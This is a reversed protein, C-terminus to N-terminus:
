FSLNALQTRLRVCSWYLSSFALQFCALKEVGNQMCRIQMQQVASTIHQGAPHVRVQTIHVRKATTNQAMCGCDNVCMMRGVCLLQLESAAPMTQRSMGVDPLVSIQQSIYPVLNPMALPVV